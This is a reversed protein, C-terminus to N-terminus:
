TAGWERASVIDVVEHPAIGQLYRDTTGLNSHGLQRQVIYVPVRERVLDCALSHRLGHPHVRKAIGAMRGLKQLRHRCYAPHIHGGPTPKNVTCFLPADAPVGLQWRVMLWKSLEALAGGDIGVTRRKSGKGCLVVVTKADFDVHHTKLDLAESIRLGTRWLFVILARNRVGSKSGDCADMLKFVEAQTLPEPPYRRKWNPPKVGANYGKITIPSRYREGPQCEVRRDPLWAIERVPLRRWRIPQTVLSFERAKM